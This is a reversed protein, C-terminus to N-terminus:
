VIKFVHFVGTSHKSKTFTVSKWPHDEGKEIQVLPLFDRLAIWM